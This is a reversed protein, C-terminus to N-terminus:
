KNTKGNLLYNLCDSLMKITESKRSEGWSTSYAINYHDNFKTIIISKNGECTVVPETLSLQLPEAEQQERGQKLTRLGSYYDNRNEDPVSWAKELYNYVGKASIIDVAFKRTGDFIRSHNRHDKYQGLLNHQNKGTLVLEISRKDFWLRNGNMRYYPVDTKGMRVTGSLPVTPLDNRKQPQNNTM